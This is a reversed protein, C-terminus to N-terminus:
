NKGPRGRGPNVGGAMAGFMVRHTPRENSTRQVAGAFLLRRKRITTEVSECQAKKLHFTIIVNNANYIVHYDQTALTLCLLTEAPQSLLRVMDETNSM